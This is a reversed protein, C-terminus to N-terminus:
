DHDTAHERRVLLATKIYTIGDAIATIPDILAEKEENFVRISGHKVGPDSILHPHGDGSEDLLTKIRAFDEPHVAIKMDTMDPMAGTIKKAMKLLRAKDDTGIEGILWETLAGSIDVVAECMTNRIDDLGSECEELMQKMQALIQEARKRGLALGAKEGALYAKDYAEREIENTKEQNKALMEELQRLRDAPQQGDPNGATGINEFPFAPERKKGSLTKLPLPELVPNM